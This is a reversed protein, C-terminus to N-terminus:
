ESLRKEKKKEKQGHLNTLMICVVVLYQMGEVRATTDLIEVGHIHVRRDHEGEM